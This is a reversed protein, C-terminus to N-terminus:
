AFKPILASYARILEKISNQFEIDTSLATGISIKASQVLLTFDFNDIYPDKRSSLSHLLDQLFDKDPTPAKTYIYLLMLLSKESTIDFRDKLLTKINTFMQNEKEYLDFSSYVWVLNILSKTNFKEYWTAVIEWV